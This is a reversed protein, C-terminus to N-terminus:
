IRFELDYELLEEEGRLVRLAGGVIAATESEGPYQFIPAIFDCHARIYRVLLPCAAYIGTLAIADVRGRLVAALAGIEKSVQYGMAEMAAIVKEDGDDIRRNIDDVDTIGIYAVLGGENRITHLVAEETAGDKFCMQVVDVIPLSGAGLASFPGDGDLANNVDIVKGRMHAAVSTGDGVHAVIANIKVYPKWLNRAMRRLVSKQNSAHFISARKIEPLGSYHAVPEMEDVVVPDVIFADIDNADAIESGIVAGWNSPHHRWAHKELDEIMAGTVRYVGGPLPHLFGGRAAVADVTSLDIHLQALRRALEEKIHRLRGERESRDVDLDLRHPITTEFVAVDDDFIAVRTALQSPCVALIRFSKLARRPRILAGIVALTAAPIMWGIGLETFPLADYARNLFEPGVGTAHLSDILGTFFAGAVAGRWINRNKLKWGALCLVVLVMVVPYLTILVPVAVSVITEVGANALVFSIAAVAVCVMRYNFKGYSLKNFYEGCVVTLGIATTLCAMSVAVGVTASGAGGLLSRAIFLMLETRTMQLAAGSTTAGLYNLGGYILALSTASIIGAKVITSIQTQKDFIGKSRLENLIVIGFITAALLDMTQYGEILSRGFAHPLGTDVPQSIPDLMGKAILFALSALLIPTLIKGIRDIVSLPNLAFFLVVAFFAASFIWSNIFPANPLIALEYTTAATRPIALFPGIALMLIVSLAKALLPSVRRAMHDIGGESKAVALVGMLPLGVGTLLFGLSSLAFRDGFLRGLTPPFILNGAGFFMAFLAFGLILATGKQTRM